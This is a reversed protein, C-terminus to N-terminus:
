EEALYWGPRFQRKLEAQRHALEGTRRWARIMAPTATRTAIRARGPAMPGIAHAQALGAGRGNFGKGAQRCDLAPPGSTEDPRYHTMFVHRGITATRELGAFWPCKSPDMLDPNVFYLAGGTPDRRPFSAAVAALRWIQVLRLHDAPTTIGLVRPINATDPSLLARRLEPGETVPQFQGPQLSVTCADDPFRPDLIRNRIVRMVALAGGPGESAAEAWAVMTLCRRERDSFPRGADEARPAPVDAGILVAAVM